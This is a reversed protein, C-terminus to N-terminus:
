STHLQSGLNEGMLKLATSKSIKSSGNSTEDSEDTIPECTQPIPEKRLVLLLIEEIGELNV